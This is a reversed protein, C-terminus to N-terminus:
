NDSGYVVLIIRSFYSNSHKFLRNFIFRHIGSGQVEERYIFPICSNKFAEEQKLEKKKKRTM